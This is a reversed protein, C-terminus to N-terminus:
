GSGNGNPRVQQAAHRLPATMRWSRSGAIAAFQSQAASLETRVAALEADLDALREQAEVLDRHKSQLRIEAADSQTVLGACRPPAAFPAQSAPKPAGARREPRAHVVCAWAPDPPLGFMDHLEVDAFGAYECMRRLAQPAPRFFVGYVGPPDEPIGAGFSVWQAHPHADTLAPDHSTEIIALEGTVSRIRELATIPDRLHLLLSGCFVVDFVGLTEPSMDYVNMPIYEVSSGAREFVEPARPAHALDDVHQRASQTWEIDRISPVDIAVVREAGRRELELAFFGDATAVDLVTKGELSDPLGYRDVVGRLDFRGEIVEGDPLDITHYWDPVPVDEPASPEVALRNEDPEVRERERERAPSSPRQWLEIGWDPAEEFWNLLQRTHSGPVDDYIVRLDHRCDHVALQYRSVPVDPWGRPPESLWTYFADLEALDFPNPPVDDSRPPVGFVAKRYAARMGQDIATGDPLAGYAYSERSEWGAELLREAYGRALRQVGPGPDWPGPWGERIAKPSLVDPKLPDFGALFHFFRL